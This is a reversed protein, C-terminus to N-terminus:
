KFSNTRIKWSTLGETVFRFPQIKLSVNELANMLIIKKKKKEFFLFYGGGGDGLLKGGLAGNHIAKNYLSDLYPSSIKNSLQKKIAWAQDMLKGINNLRGRLLEDRIQISIDVNIKVLKKINNSKSVKKQDKHISDSDHSGGVWCLVLSEELEMKARKSIRLPHVINQTMKFEIFNLGGFVAAYQDQWGGAIGLSHREAQYALEALEYSDWKDQRMENFAGLISISIASSGGLGSSSHYDSYLMLNFGFKPKILAILAIILGFKKNSTTLLENFNIAEISSGLDRSHIKISSDNHIELTVHSYLSITSNIVAGNSENFYNTVDSGSGGFSIRVPASSRVVVTEEEEIPFRDKSIINVIKQKQYDIIPIVRVGNDFKKLLAERSESIEGYIFNTNCLNNIKDTLLGGNILHRRADGDTIVGIIKDDDCVFVIGDHNLEIKKLAAEFSAKSSIVYNKINM